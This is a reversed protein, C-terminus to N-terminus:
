NSTDTEIRDLTTGKFTLVRTFSLSSPKYYWKEVKRENAGSVTEKFFPEGCKQFVSPKSDGGRIVYTGCRMSERALAPLSLAMTMALVSTLVIKM